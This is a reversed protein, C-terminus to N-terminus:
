RSEKTQTSPPAEPLDYGGLALWIREKDTAEVISFLRLDSPSYERDEIRVQYRMSFGFGEADSGLPKGVEAEVQAGSGTVALRM